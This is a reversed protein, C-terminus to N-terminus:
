WPGGATPADVNGWMKGSPVRKIPTQIRQFANTPFDICSAYSDTASTLVSPPQSEVNVKIDADADAMAKM